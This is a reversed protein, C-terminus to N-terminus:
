ESHYPNLAFSPWKLDLTRRFFREENWGGVGEKCCSQAEGVTFAIEILM